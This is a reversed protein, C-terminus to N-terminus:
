LKEIHKVSSTTYTTTRGSSRVIDKANTNVKYEENTTLHYHKIEDDKVKINVLGNPTDLTIRQTSLDVKVLKGQVIINNLREIHTDKFKKNIEEISKKDFMKKSNNQNDQIEIGLDEKNLKSVLQKVSNFTRPSYTEAFEPTDIKGELLDSVDSLVNTVLQNESEFMSLQSEKMGLDIIFSGARTETIILENRALIDKPIKGRKRDFGLISAVGNEQVNEFASLTETLQRLGIQGSPLGHPLLRLSLINKTKNIETKEKEFVGISELGLAMMKKYPNADSADKFDQKIIKVFNEM